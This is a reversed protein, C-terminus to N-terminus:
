RNRPRDGGEDPASYAAAIERLICSKDRAGLTYDTDPAGPGTRPDARRLLDGPRHPVRLLVLRQPHTPPILKNPVELDTALKPVVEM